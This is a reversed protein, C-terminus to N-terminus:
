SQSGEVVDRGKRGGSSRRQAVDAFQGGGSNRLKPNATHLLGPSGSTMAAALM